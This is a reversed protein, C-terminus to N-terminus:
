SEGGKELTQAFGNQRMWDDSYFKTLYNRGTDPLITVVVQDKKLRKAVQLAAFAASGSSGGSIIGEEAALRRATQFADRDSVVVIEDLLNLDLNSPLFDEGIGEVKYTHTEGETGEFEHHYISGEPDVGVIKIKPNKEKLYRAVGTITGGTGMGAVLFDIKGETQEWIEPGTTRYHIEPNAPNFFQNPMFTNPEESAIREAVKVYNNPDDPPVATPTIIVKAGLAKLLDIKEPSMKDPITFVLKYGKVIAALALGLGTNGSTPEVITYGPKILGRREADEIM